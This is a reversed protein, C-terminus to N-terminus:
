LTFASLPCSHLHVVSQKKQVEHNTTTFITFSCINAYEYVAMYVSVLASYVVLHLLSIICHTLSTPTKETDAKPYKEEKKDIYTPM